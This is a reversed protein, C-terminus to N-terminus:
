IKWMEAVAGNSGSYLIDGEITFCGNGRLTAIKEHTKTNWISITGDNVLPLKFSIRLTHQKNIEDWQLGITEIYNQVVEKREKIDTIKNLGDINSLHVEVWDLWKDKKNISDLEVQKTTIETNLNNERQNVSQILVDFRNKDM